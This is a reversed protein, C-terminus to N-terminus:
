LCPLELVGQDGPIVHGSADVVGLEELDAIVVTYEGGTLDVIMMLWPYRFSHAYINSCSWKSLRRRTQHEIDYLVVDGDDEGPSYLSRSSHVVLGSDIPAVIFSPDDTLLTTADTTADHLIFRMGQSSDWLLYSVYREWVRLFANFSAPALMETVGTQLDYTWVCHSESEPAVCHDLWVALESTLEHESIHSVMPSDLQLVSQDLLDYLWLENAELSTGSLETAEAVLLFRDNLDPPTIRFPSYRLTTATPAAFDRLMVWTDDAELDIPDQAIWAVRSGHRVGGWPIRTASLVTETCTAFDLMVLAWEGTLRTYRSYVAGGDYLRWSILAHTQPDEPLVLVPDGCSGLGADGDVAPAADVMRADPQASVDVASAADQIPAEGRPMPASCGSGVVGLVLLAGLVGARGISSAPSAPVELPISDGRRLLGEPCYLYQILCDLPHAIGTVDEVTANAPLNVTKSVSNDVHEQFAAQIAVPHIVTMSQQGNRFPLDVVEVGNGDDHYGYIPGGAEAHM